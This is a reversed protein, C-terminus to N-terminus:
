MEADESEGDLTMSGEDGDDSDPEDNDEDESPEISAMAAKNLPPAPADPFAPLVYADVPADVYKETAKLQLGAERKHLEIVKRLLSVQQLLDEIIKAGENFAHDDAGARLEGLRKFPHRMIGPSLREARKWEEWWEVRSMRLYPIIRQTLPDYFDHYEYTVNVVRDFRRMLEQINWEIHEISVEAPKKKDLNTTRM